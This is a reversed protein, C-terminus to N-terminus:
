KLDNNHWLIMASRRADAHGPYFFHTHSMMITDVHLTTPVEVLVPQSIAYEPTLGVDLITTNNGAAPEFVAASPFVHPQSRLLERESLGRTCLM